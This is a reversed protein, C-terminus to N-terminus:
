KNMVDILETLESFAASERSPSGHVSSYCPRRALLWECYM